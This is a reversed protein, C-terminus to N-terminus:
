DAEMRRRCNACDVHEAPETWEEVDNDRIPVGRGCATIRALRPNPMWHWKTWYWPSPRHRWRVAKGKIKAM